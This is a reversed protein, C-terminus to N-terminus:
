RQFEELIRSYRRPKTRKIKKEAKVCRDCMRVAADGSAVTWTARNVM